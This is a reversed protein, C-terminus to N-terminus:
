CCYGTTTSSRANVHVNCNAMWRRGSSYALKKGNGIRTRGKRWEVTAQGIRLKGIQPTQPDDDRHGGGGRRTPV